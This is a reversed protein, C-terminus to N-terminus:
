LDLLHLDVAWGTPAVWAPLAGLLTALPAARPAGPSHAAASLSLWPAGSAVLAAPGELRCRLRWPAAREGRATFLQVFHTHRAGWTPGPQLAGGPPECHSVRVDAAGALILVVHTGGHAVLELERGWLGPSEAVIM